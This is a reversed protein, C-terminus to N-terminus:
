EELEVRGGSEASELWAEIVEMCRLGETGPVPAHPAIEVIARSFDEIEDIYARDAHGSQETTEDGIAVTMRWDLVQGFAHEVRVTGETGFVALTADSYAYGVDMLCVAGSDLELVGGALDEVEYQFRVNATTGTVADVEGGLWRAIDITHPALDMIPGGGAMSESLRWKDGPSNVFAFGMRLLMLKGLQGSDILEKVAALHPFYRMQHAVGLLKGAAAAAECMEEADEASMALPKDCLVHKGGALLALTDDKHNANPTAVYVADVEPDEILDALDDYGRAANHRGAFESAKEISRSCFAILDANDSANIAPAIRGDAIRGCGLIGWGTTM